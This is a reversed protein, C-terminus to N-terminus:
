IKNKVKFSSYDTERKYRELADKPFRSTVHVTCGNKLLLLTALYGIKIRGGTVIAVKGTLNFKEETRKNFNFNGCDLCMSHYHHHVKRYMEKCSYCRKPKSLHFLAGDKRM